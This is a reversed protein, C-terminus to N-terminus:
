LVLRVIFVFCWLEYVNVFNLITKSFVYIKIKKKLLFFGYKIEFYLWKLFIYYLVIVLFINKFFIKNFKFLIICYDFFLVVYIYIVNLIIILSVM